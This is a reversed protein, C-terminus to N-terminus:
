EQVFSSWTWWGWPRRSSGWGTTREVAVRPTQLIRAFHQSSRGGVIMVSKRFFSTISSAPSVLEGSTRHETKLTPSATVHQGSTNITSSFMSVHLRKSNIITRDWGLDLGLVRKVFSLRTINSIVIILREQGIIKSALYYVHDGSCASNACSLRNAASLVNLSEHNTYDKGWHRVITKSLARLWGSNSFSRGVRLYLRWSLESFTRVAKRSMSMLTFATRAALTSNRNAEYLLCVVFYVTSKKGKYSYIGNYNM